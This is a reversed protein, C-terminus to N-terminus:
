DNSTRRVSLIAGAIKSTQKGYLCVSVAFQIGPYAGGATMMTSFSVWKDLGLKLILRM